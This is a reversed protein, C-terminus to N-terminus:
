WAPADVGFEGPKAAIREQHNPLDAADTQARLAALRKKWSTDERYSRALKITVDVGPQGTPRTKPLSGLTTAAAM